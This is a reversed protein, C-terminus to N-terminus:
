GKALALRRSIERFRDLNRINAPSLVIAMYHERGEATKGISVLKIRDSEGAIQHLWAFIQTYNALFYDAGATAKLVAAPDTITGTTAPADSAEVPNAVIAALAVALRIGGQFRRM